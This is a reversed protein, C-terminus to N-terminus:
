KETETIAIVPIEHYKGVEEPYKWEKNLFLTFAEQSLIYGSHGGIPFKVNRVKRLINLLRCQLHWLTSFTLRKQIKDIPGTPKVSVMAQLTAITYKTM